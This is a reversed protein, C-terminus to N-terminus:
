GTRHVLKLVANPLTCVLARGASRWRRYGLSASACYAERAERYNRHKWERRALSWLDDGLKAEIHPLADADRVCRTRMLRDAFVVNRGFNVSKVSQAEHLRYHTLIEDVYSFKGIEALRVWLDWDQANMLKPDFIGSEALAERRVMVSSTHLFNQRLLSHFEQGVRRFKRASLGSAPVAVPDASRNFDTYILVADPERETVAMQKELKEPLWLDDADLFAIYRGKAALLGRNRAVASGAHAQKHYTIRSGYPQLRIDTDDTSADDVVIVEFDQYTQNFVSELADVIYLGANHTPIVVSVSPQFSSETM